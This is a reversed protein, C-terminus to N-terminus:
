SKKDTKTSAEAKLSGARLSELASTLCVGCDSGVGLEQLVKTNDFAHKDAAKELDEKTINRCVCIIM